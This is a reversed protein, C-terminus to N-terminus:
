PSPSYAVPDIKTPWLLLYAALIVGLIVVTIASRKMKM